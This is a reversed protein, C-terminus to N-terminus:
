QLLYYIFCKYCVSMYSVYNRLKVYYLLQMSESDLELIKKVFM